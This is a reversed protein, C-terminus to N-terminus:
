SIGGVGGRVLLHGDQAPEQPWLAGGSGFPTVEPM